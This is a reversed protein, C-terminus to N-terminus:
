RCLHIQQKVKQEMDNLDQYSLEHVIYEPNILNIIEKVDEVIFPRHQDISTIHQWITKSDIQSLPNNVTDCIYQIGEAESKLETNPNMLHGTDLM